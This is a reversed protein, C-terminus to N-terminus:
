RHVRNRRDTEVDCFRYKLHVANISGALHHDAALQLTPIHEKRESAAVM